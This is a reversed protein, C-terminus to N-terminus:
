SVHGAWNVRILIQKVEQQIVARDGEGKISNDPFLREVKFVIKVHLEVVLQYESETKHSTDFAYILRLNFHM